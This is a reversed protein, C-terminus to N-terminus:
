RRMDFVMVSFLLALYLISYFFLFMGNPKKSFFFRLTLVIYVMSLVVASYFYMSGAMGLIAPMISVPFLSATYVLTKMKAESIGKAVPLTPIGALKYDQYYKIALVWFHPPQWLFMIIFLILAEININNLVAAYGIVPPLAGSIGGIETAVPSRRKLAITYIVVYVFSAIATLFASLENVFTLHIIIGGITLFIGFILANNPSINGLPLPRNKTRTMLSDIDREFYQNLTAAGASSLGTGLLTWFVLLGDPMGRKAFYMGTLTTILVLIVIGPKTLIIYDKITHSINMAKAVSKGVM